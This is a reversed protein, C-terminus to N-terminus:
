VTLLFSVKVVQGFAGKGLKALVQYETACRSAAVNAFSNRSPMVDSSSSSLSGVSDSRRLSEESSADGADEDM